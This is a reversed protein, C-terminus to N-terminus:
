AGHGFYFLFLILEELDKFSAMQQGCFLKPIKSKDIEICFKTTCYQFTFCTIFKMEKLVDQILKLSAHELRIVMLDKFGLLFSLDQDSENRLILMQPSCCAPLQDFLNAPQDAHQFLLNRVRSCNKLFDLFKTVNEIRKSIQVYQLNNLRGWFDTPIPVTEIKSYVITDKCHPMRDAIRSYNAVMFSLAENSSLNLHLFDPYDSSDALCLGYLYIKLEARGYRRKQDHFREFADRDNLHIEKLQNLYSLLSDSLQYFNACYLSKLSKFDALKEPSGLDLSRNDLISVAEVSEARLIDLRTYCDSIEIECLRPADLTIVGDNHSKQFRIRTLKPLALRFSGQLNPVRVFDM